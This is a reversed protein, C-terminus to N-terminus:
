NYLPTTSWVLSKPTRKQFAEEPVEVIERVLAREEVIGTWPDVQRSRGCLILAGYENEDRFLSRRLQKYHEDLITFTHRVMVREATRRPHLQPIHAPWRNGSEM